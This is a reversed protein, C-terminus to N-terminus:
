NSHILSLWDQIVTKIQDFANNKELHNPQLYSKRNVELMISHVYANSKYAQTPLMTGAYPWDIGLSYGHHGFFIKSLEIWKEPTHFTDIGINFDPRPRTQDIDRMLPIDPYSHCDIIRASGDRKVFEEVVDNLHQHHPAYYSNFISNRLESTMERLPTGDDCHTYALGMGKAAMPEIEDQAFREVDCFVRSFKAQIIADRKNGFLEDTFWDTLLQIEQNTTEENLYGDTFPIRTSAHPVHLILTPPSKFGIVQTTKGPKM